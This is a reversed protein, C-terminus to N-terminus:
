ETHMEHSHLTRSDRMAQLSFEQEADCTMFKGKFASVGDHLEQNFRRSAARGRDRRDKQPALKDQGTESAQTGDRAKM